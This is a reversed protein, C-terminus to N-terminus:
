FSIHHLLIYSFASPLYADISFGHYIVIHSSGGFVLIVIFNSCSRVGLPLYHCQDGLIASTHSALFFYFYYLGVRNKLRLLSYSKYELLLYTHILLSKHIFYKWFRICAIIKLLKLFHWKKHWRQIHNIILNFIAELSFSIQRPM